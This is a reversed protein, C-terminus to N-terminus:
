QRNYLGIRRCRKIEMCKATNLKEEQTEGVVTESLECFISDKMSNEAEEQTETVGRIIITHDLSKQEMTNIRQKLKHYESDLVQKKQTLHINETQLQM